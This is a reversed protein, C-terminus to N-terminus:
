FSLEIQGGLEFGNYDLDGESHPQAYRYHARSGIALNEELSYNLQLGVKAGPGTYTEEVILRQDHALEFDSRYIGAAASAYLDVPRTAIFKALDYTGTLLFGRTSINASTNEHVLETEDLKEFEAGVAIQGLRDEQFWQKAGLFLGMASNDEADLDEEIEAAWPEGELNFTNYSLGTYLSLDGMSVELAEISTQTAFIVVFLFISIIVLSSIKKM